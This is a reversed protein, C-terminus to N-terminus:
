KPQQLGQAVLWSQTAKIRRTMWDEDYYGKDEEHPLTNLVTIFADLYAIRQAQLSNQHGDYEAIALREEFDNFLADRDFSNFSSRRSLEYPPVSLVSMNMEPDFRDPKDPRLESMNGLNKDFAGRSSGSLVSMNTNATFRDSKDPRLEPMNGLFKKLWKSM